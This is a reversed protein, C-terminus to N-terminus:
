TLPRVLVRCSHCVATYGFHTREDDCRGPYAIHHHGVRQHLPQSIRLNLHVHECWGSCGRKRITHRPHTAAVQKIHTVALNAKARAPAQRTRQRM